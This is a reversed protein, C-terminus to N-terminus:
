SKFPKKLVFRSPHCWHIDDGHPLEENCEFCTIYNYDSKLELDLHKSGCKCTLIDVVVYDAGKTLPPAIKRGELPEINEATIIDAVKFEEM